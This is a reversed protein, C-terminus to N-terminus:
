ASPLDAYLKAAEREREAQWPTRGGEAAAPLAELHTHWGAAVSQLPAASLGGQTLVLRCGDGDPTLEWRVVSNPHQQHPWTWAILRPPDLETIVGGMRYDHAPWHLNVRGGVRLDIEAEALWCAIREPVTLAAWVAQVPQKLRREFVIEYVNGTRRVEGKEGEFARGLM